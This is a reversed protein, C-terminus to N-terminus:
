GRKGQRTSGRKVCLQHVLFTNVTTEFAMCTCAPDDQRGGMQPGQSVHYLSPVSFDRSAAEQQVVFFLLLLFGLQVIKSISKGIKTSIRPEVSPAVECRVFVQQQVRQSHELASKEM